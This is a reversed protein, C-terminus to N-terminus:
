AEEADALGLGTEDRGGRGAPTKTAPALSADAGAIFFDRGALVGSPGAHFLSSASVLNM